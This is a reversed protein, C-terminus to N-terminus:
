GFVDLAKRLEAVVPDFALVDPVAVNGDGEAGPVRPRGVARPTRPASRRGGQLPRDVSRGPTVDLPSHCHRLRRGVQRDVRHGHREDIAVNRRDDIGDDYLLRRNHVDGAGIRGRRLDDLSRIGVFVPDEGAEIVRTLFVIRALLNVALAEARDRPPRM